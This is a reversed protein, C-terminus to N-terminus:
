DNKKEMDVYAYELFGYKTKTMMTSSRYKKESATYSLKIGDPSVEEKEEDYGLAYIELNRPAVMVLFEGPITIEGTTENLTGTIDMGGNYLNSVSVEVKSSSNSKLSITM